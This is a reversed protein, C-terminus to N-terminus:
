QGHRNKFCGRESVARSAKPNGPFEATRTFMEITKRWVAKAKTDGKREKEAIEEWFADTVEMCVRAVRVCRVYMPDCVSDGRPFHPTESDKARGLVSFKTSDFKIYGINLITKM